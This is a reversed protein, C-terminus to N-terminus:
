CVSVGNSDGQRAQEAVKKAQEALQKSKQYSESEALDRGEEEAESKILERHTECYRIAEQIAALPLDWNEAAEEITMDNVFLDSWIVSAPLRSGKIYLQKRWSQPRPSLFKWEENKSEKPLSQEIASILEMREEVSLAAARVKLEELSMM